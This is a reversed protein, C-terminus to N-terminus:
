LTNGATREIAHELVFHPAAGEAPREESHISEV